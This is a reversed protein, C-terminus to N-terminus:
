KENSDEILEAKKGWGNDEMWKLRDEPSMDAVNMTTTNNISNIDLKMSSGWESRSRNMLWYEQARTNPPVTKTIVKTVRLKEKPPRGRGRTAKPDIIRIPEEVIEQYTYGIASKYLAAVVQANPHKKGERLAELFEPYKNKWANLTVVSIDMEEAIQEEIMGLKAYTRVLFPSSKADYKKHSLGM